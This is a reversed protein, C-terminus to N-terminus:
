KIGLATDKFLTLTTFQTSHINVGVFSAASKLFTVFCSRLPEARAAAELFDRHQAGVLGGAGCAESPRPLESARPLKLYKSSITHPCPATLKGPGAADEAEARQM